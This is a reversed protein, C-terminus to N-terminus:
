KNLGQNTEKKMEFIEVGHYARKEGTKRFGFREYLRVANKLPQYCELSITKCQKQVALKQIEDLIRRGIGKGQTEPTVAMSCIYLDDGGQTNITATGVIENEYLAVLVEAEPDNIRKEIEDSSLVTAIYAEQTYVKKYPEFSASLVQHIQGCDTSNASRINVRSEGGSGAEM